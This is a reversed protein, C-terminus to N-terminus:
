FNILTAMISRTSIFPTKIDKARRSNGFTDMDLHKTVVHPDYFIQFGLDNIRKSIDQTEHYQMQADFGDIKKFIDARIAFNSEIGWDISLPSQISNSEISFIYINRFLNHLVRLLTENQHFLFYIMLSMAELTSRVPHLRYGFNWYHQKNEKTLVKGTIVAISEQEFSKQLSDLNMEIIEMDVDVFLLIDKNNIIGHQYMSLVRNRNGAPGLNSQGEVMYIENPCTAQFDKIIEKSDDTSCDDSIIIKGFHYTIASTLLNRLYKSGNYNPIILHVM